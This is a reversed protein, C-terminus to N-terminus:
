LIAMSWAAHLIICYLANLNGKIQGCLDSQIGSYFGIEILGPSLYLSPMLAADSAPDLNIGPTSEACLSMEVGSTCAINSKIVADYPSLMAPFEQQLLPTWVFITTGRRGASSQLTCVSACFVSHPPIRMVPICEMLQFTFTTVEWLERRGVVYFSSRACIQIPLM